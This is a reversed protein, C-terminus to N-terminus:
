SGISFPTSFQDYRPYKDTALVADMLIVAREIGRAM